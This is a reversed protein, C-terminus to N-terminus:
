NEEQHGSLWRILICVFAVMALALLATSYLTSWPQPLSGWSLIEVIRTRDVLRAVAICVSWILMNRIFLRQRKTLAGGIPSM